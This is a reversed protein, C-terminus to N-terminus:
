SGDFIVTEPMMVAELPNEPLIVPFTVPFRVPFTVPFRVPFTVPIAEVALVRVPLGSILTDFIM